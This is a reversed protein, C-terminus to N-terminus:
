TLEPTVETPAMPGIGVDHLVDASVRDSLSRAYPVLLCYCKCDL